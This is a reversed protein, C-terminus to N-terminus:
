GGGLSTTPADHLLAVCILILPRAACWRCSIIDAFDRVPAGPQGIVAFDAGRSASEWTRKIDSFRHFYIVPHISTPCNDRRDVRRLCFSAIIPIGLRRLKARSKRTRSRPRAL